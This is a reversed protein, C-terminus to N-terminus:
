TAQLYGRCHKHPRRQSATAQSLLLSLGAQGPVDVYKDALELGHLVSKRPTILLGEHLDNDLSVCILNAM